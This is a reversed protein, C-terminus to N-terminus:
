VPVDFGVRTWGDLRDVRLPEAVGFTLALRSRLNDLGHGAPIDHMSFGPGSDAVELRVRDAERRAHVRVEGGKRDPAVAFKVSNEVLTQLAFPPVLSGDLGSDATLSYRLRSGFRVQEIELYDRVIGLEQEIPVLRGTHADLSSRLVSALREILREASAPAEPILSSVTNLANFLFHPHVRAELAALRAESALKLAREHALAQAHLKAETEHLRDRLRQLMAQVVGFLLALVVALRMSVSLLTGFGMGTELRFALVLVTGVLSGAMAIAGLLLVFITWQVVPGGWGLPFVRGLILHAPAAIVLAYMLVTGFLVGPPPQDSFVYLVIWILSAVLVSDIVIQVLGRMWGSM